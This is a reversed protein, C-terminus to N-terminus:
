RWCSKTAEFDGFTLHLPRLTAYWLPIGFPVRDGSGSLYVIRAGPEGGTARM